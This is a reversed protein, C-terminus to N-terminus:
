FEVGNGVDIVNLGNERLMRIIKPRDDFWADIIYKKLYKEYIDHKVDVDDRKDGSRRMILTEYTIGNDALWKETTERYDEPRASVLVIPHGNQRYVDVQDAVDKLLTDQPIGAFFLKWDKTEGKAYQLRHTCDALTGDLDVCVIGRDGIKYLGYQMAFQIIVNAGVSKERLKDREVCVGWPTDIYIYEFQADCERAITSWMEKNKPNLNTDDIVINHGTALLTRALAKEVNVTIGENRGSWKDFHLMIRLFDRNLRVWNGQEVIELAKTTKGSAPLGSLMILKM